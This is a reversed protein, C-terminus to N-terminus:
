ASVAPSQTAWLSSSVEKPVVFERTLEPDCVIPEVEGTSATTSLRRIALCSRVMKSQAPLEGECAACHTPVLLVITLICATFTAQAFADVTSSDCFAVKNVRHSGWSCAGTEALHQLVALAM